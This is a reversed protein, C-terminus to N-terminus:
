PNQIARQTLVRRITQALDHVLWPKVLCAEIGLAQATATDMTQGLGTCLIIPIGPRLLRLEDVLQEGTMEPMNQDTIVLDFRHPAGRFTDLAERGSTKAVVDYGWQELLAQGLGALMATDDVFLIRETGHPPPEQPQITEAGSAGIRPLYVTCTTGEQPTSQVRIAGSHSIVIGHVVALGMGTGEGVEKTTFFPEFIRELVDPTMGCGTDRVTLCVHPGPHLEPYSAAHAAEVEVTDLRVELVGGTQRMAYAANTCLNLVVQLLQAPDALVRDADAPLQQQITITTPLSARLISLAETVILHLQVPTRLMMTQRSFALIQRVLEEARRGSSLVHQLCQQLRSDRPVVDLAFTTYGLISTLFNNFYHAIGGALTGIAELKQIQGLQKELQKRETIDRLVVAAGSLQVQDDRMIALSEEVYVVTGDGALLLREVAASVATEGQLAQLVLPEMPARTEPHLIACVERLDKGIAAASQWRTLREAAPNMAVIRGTTNTTIVADSISHLTAASWQEQRRLQCEMQHKYLAIEIQVRLDRESFPKIIYGFPETVKARQMTNEDSYGTVYIVPIDFQVRMKNAVEIGDKSGKLVIDMLVLDPQTEVVRQLAEDGSSALAPVDYGLRTLRAELERAVIVEDEVVLIKATAM